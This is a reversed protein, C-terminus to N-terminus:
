RPYFWASTVCLRTYNFFCDSDFFLGSIFIIQLRRCCYSAFQFRCLCVSEAKWILDKYVYGIICVLRLIEFVTIPSIPSKRDSRCANSFLLFLSIKSEIVSVLGSYFELKWCCSFSHAWSFGSIMSHSRFLAQPSFDEDGSIWFSSRSAIARPVISYIDAFMWFVVSKVIMASSVASTELLSCSIIQMRHTSSQKTICSSKM